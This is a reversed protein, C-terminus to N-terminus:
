TKIVVGERQGIGQDFEVISLYAMLFIKTNTKVVGIFILGIKM